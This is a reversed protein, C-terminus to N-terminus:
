EKFFPALLGLVTSTVLIAVSAVASSYWDTFVAFPSQPLAFAWATFAATAAFMEWKPWESFKIPLAVNLNKLKAAYVMWVIIPTGILFSIFTAWHANTVVTGGLAALVAVYLAIIETPIYGFLVTLAAEVNAKTTSKYQEIATEKEEDLFLGTYVQAKAIPTVEIPKSDIAKQVISLISM